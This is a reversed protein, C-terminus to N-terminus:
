GAGEAVAGLGVDDEAGAEEPEGRGEDDAEQQQDSNPTPNLTGGSTTAPRSRRDPVRRRGFWGEAREESRPALGM